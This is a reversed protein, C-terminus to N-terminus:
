LVVGMLILLEKVLHSVWSVITRTLYPFERREDLVELDLVYGQTLLHSFHSLQAELFCAWEPDLDQELQWVHQLYVTLGDFVDHEDGDVLNWSM